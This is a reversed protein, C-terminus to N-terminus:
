SVLLEQLGLTLGTLCRVLRQFRRKYFFLLASIGSMWYLVFYRFGPLLTSLFIFAAFGICFYRHTLITSVVNLGIWWGQYPLGIVAGGWSCSVHELVM